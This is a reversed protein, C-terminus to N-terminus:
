KRRKGKIYKVYCKACLWGISSEYATKTYRPNLADWCVICHTHDTQREEEETIKSLPAENWDVGRAESINDELWQNDNIEKM